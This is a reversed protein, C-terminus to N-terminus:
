EIDPYPRSEAPESEQCDPCPKSGTRWWGKRDYTPIEGSGGCTKCIPEPESEQKAFFEYRTMGFHEEAMSQNFYEGCYCCRFAIWLPIKGGGHIKVYGTERAEKTQKAVFARKADVEKKSAPCHIENMKELKAVDTAILRLSDKEAKNLRSEKSIDRLTKALSM